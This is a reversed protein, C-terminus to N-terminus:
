PCNIGVFGYEGSAGITMTDMQMSLTQQL